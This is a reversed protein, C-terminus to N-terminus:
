FDESCTLGALTLLIGGYDFTAKCLSNQHLPQCFGMRLGTPAPVDVSGVQLDLVPPAIQVARNIPIYVEDGGHEAGGTVSGERVGEEAARTLMPKRGYQTVAM